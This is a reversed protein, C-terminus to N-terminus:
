CRFTVLSIIDASQITIIIYLLVFFVVVLLPWSGAEAVAGSTISTSVVVIIGSSSSSIIITIIAGSRFPSTMCTLGREAYCSRVAKRKWCHRQKDTKM